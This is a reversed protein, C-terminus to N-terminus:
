KKGAKGDNASGTTTRKDTTNSAGSGTSAHPPQNSTDSRMQDRAANLQETRQNNTTDVPTAPTGESYQVPAQGNNVTSDTPTSKGGTTDSCSALFLLLIASSLLIPTSSKM